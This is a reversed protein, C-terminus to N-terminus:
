RVNVGVLNAIMGDVTVIVTVDGRGALNRPLRLNIQDQGAFSGQAGAYLIPAEVEGASASVRELASRHRFGTGFLLLFVQDNADGLDIPAAVYKNTSPDFRAVPEFTQSGDQKVRLVVGAAVGQGNANATFLGPAVTAINAAGTSIAGDGSTVTIAAIGPAAGQPVLFNIQNPAAFFLQSLRDVGLSDRVSVTAGALTVPLPLTNATQTTAALNAGFLAAISESALGTEANLSAASLAAVTRIATAPLTKRIRHNSQDAIYLNGTRDLAVGTPFNLQAGTPASGDGTSGATGIGAVTTIRGTSMTVKRIRHNGQDAIYLDGAADVAIFVPSDLQAGSASINDGNYGPGGGGAVASIKGDAANVRRVRQDGIDVIYVNGAADVAVGSPNFFRAATAAGGDGTSGLQGTGAITTIVGTRGDVKRVRANFTDAIYLNGAADLAIGYPSSLNAETALGGDGGFDNRGDGAVTTIVGDLAVKRIRNNGTDAISVNGAADVAIGFPLNMSAATAQGGDGSSGLAGSGAFATIVGAPTVKRVRHNAADTFYINGAADVAVGVPFWLQAATAAGGDGSSGNTGNGAATVIMQQPSFSVALHASSTKGGADWATVMLNNLGNQLSIAPITWAAKGFAEGGGGRDSSWRVAVVARDDIASGSLTLPSNTATFFANTTPATIRVTPTADDLNAAPVIKRIRSNFIEAFYVTGAADVAVGYPENLLAGVAAAGDPSFGAFSSGAITRILGTNAAMRRVRGNNLDGFYLNGAGDFAMGSVFGVGARTAQVNEGDFEYSGNGALTNIVGASLTVKRIRRNGSDAVVLDGAGDVIVAFPANLAADKAPGGDGSFGFQGTGAITTIKGDAGVRRVRHNNTDAIYLVGADDVVVGNPGNLQAATAAGGDGGFGAAGNGAVTTIVGDSATVKRIRHNLWDGIYLNGSRDLAVFTPANLKASTAPGGDGGYGRVGSGAVTTIAGNPTIKRIRHNNFDCFYLNGAPDFIPSVPYYLNAAVAQSNDGLFGQQGTGAVTVLVNAPPAFVNTTATSLNGSDDSATVIIVNEGTTLPLNSEWMPFNSIATGAAGRNTRWTVSAVNDNDTARVALHVFGEAVTAPNSNPSVIEIEPAITDPRGEQKVSFNRGGITVTGARRWITDNEEIKLNVAGAGAGSGGSAVSIW